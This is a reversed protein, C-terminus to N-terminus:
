PPSTSPLDDHVGHVYPITGPFCIGVLGWPYSPLMWREARDGLLLLYRAFSLCIITTGFEPVFTLDWPCVVGRNGWIQDIICVPWLAWVPHLIYVLRLGPIGSKNELQYFMISNCSSFLACSHNGLSVCVTMKIWCQADNDGVYRVLPM